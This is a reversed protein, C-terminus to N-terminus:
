LGGGQKHAPGSPCAWGRCGARPRRGATRTGAM